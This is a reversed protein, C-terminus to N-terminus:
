GHWLLIYVRYKVSPSGHYLYLIFPASGFTKCCIWMSNDEIKLLHGLSLFDSARLFIELLLDQSIRSELCSSIWDKCYGHWKCSGQNLDKVADGTLTKILATPTIKWNASHFQMFHNTQGRIIVKSGSNILGKSVNQQSCSTLIFSGNLFISFISKPKKYIYIHKRALSTKAKWFYQMFKFLKVGFKCKSPSSFFM